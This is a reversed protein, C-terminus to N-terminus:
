ADAPNTIELRKGQGHCTVSASDLATYPGGEPSWEVSVYGEYAEPGGDRDYYRVHVVSEDGFRDAAKRLIEQGEDYQKSVIGRKRALTLELSWSQATKTQSGWGDSDYDSDDEMNSDIGPNLETIARVPVWDPEGASGTARDVEVKFKRALTSVLTEDTGAYTSM